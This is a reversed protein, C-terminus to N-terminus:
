LKRRNLRSITQTTRQDTLITELNKPIGHLECQRRIEKALNNDCELLYHEITESKKCAPCLGDSDRLYAKLNCKGLQLRTLTVENNRNSQSLKTQRQIKPQLRYYARGTKEEDWMQQWIQKIIANSIYYADNIELRVNHDITPKDAGKAALGDARENGNIGAHSPIWVVTANQQLQHMAETTQILLNPHSQSKGSQIDWVTCLSDTLFTVPYRSIEPMKVLAEVALKIAYLEAVSISIGDSLRACMEIALTTDEPKMIVIGVGVNGNNKVSADTYVRVSNRYSDILCSALACASTPNERKNIQGHLSSDITPRRVLWPPIQNLEPGQVIQFIPKDMIEKVKMAFPRRHSDYNGYSTTWHDHMIVSTMHDSTARVKIAYKLQQSLRRLPLPMDNCKVQIANRATGRMAGCALRLARTQIQTIKQLQAESASDYAIAGYDLVSRVLTRYLTMLTARDAGWSTGALTKMLNLSRQCKELVHKIHDKWVLHKDFVLGLFKASNSLKVTKGNIALSLDKTKNSEGRTFLVAVTKETSISFGWQDCWVLLADLARQMQKFLLKTNPGKNHLTTDDAFLSVDIKGRPETDNVATPLDDIMCIFASPSIMAGQPTGNELEFPDSLTSGLRVRATRGDLFDTVWDYMRGNIGIKKLKILLGNKWLMDYAKEFDVFVALVKDKNGFQRVITDQLRM